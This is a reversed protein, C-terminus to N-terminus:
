KVLGWSREESSYFEKQISVSFIEISDLYKKMDEDYGWDMAYKERARVFHSNLSEDKDISAVRIRIKNKANLIQYNSLLDLLYYFELDSNTKGNYYVVYGDPYVEVLKDKSSDYEKVAGHKLIMFPSTLTEITAPLYEEANLVKHYTLQPYFFGYENRPFKCEAILENMDGVVSMLYTITRPEIIHIQQGTTLKINELNVATARRGKDPKPPYFFDNFNHKFDNDHNYVFLLGRVESLGPQTSYKKAWEKSRKACNITKGLSNLSNEIMKPSLSGAAYSKLDTNLYITKNLYPDKYHFVVDVPHTHAQAKDEPKHEDENICPFDQDIPGYQQWKFRSLLKSAVLKALDERPGNEAM